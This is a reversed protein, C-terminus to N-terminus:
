RRICRCQDGPAIQIRWCSHGAAIWLGKVATPGPIPGPVDGEVDPLYCDQRSVVESTWLEDSMAGVHAIINDYTERDPIVVDATLPLETSATDDPDGAAWVTNNPRTFIE